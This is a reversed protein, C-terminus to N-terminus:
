KVGYMKNEKMYKRVATPVMGAISMGATVAEKIKSSSVNNEVIEYMPFINKRNRLLTTNKFVIDQFINDSNRQFVVIKYESLLRESNQWRDMSKLNDTGCIFHVEVNGYLEKYYDLVEITPCVGEYQSNEIDYSGIKINNDGETEIALRLMEVRHKSPTVNSKDEYSYKDGVPEFYVEDLKFDEKARLAVRIHLNTVPDFTGGFVGIRKKPMAIFKYYALATKMDRLAGMEEAEEFSFFGEDLISENEDCNKEGQVADKRLRGAFLHTFETTYGASVWVGDLSIVDVVDERKYGTEEAIEKLTNELPTLNDELIGAPIEWLNEMSGPRFQKVLYFKTYNYNFLIMATADKKDIFEYKFNENHHAHHKMYGVKIFGKDIKPEISIKHSEGDRGQKEIERKM